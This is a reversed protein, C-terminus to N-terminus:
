AKAVYGIIEKLSPRKGYMLLCLRFVKAAAWMAGAVSGALIILSLALEWASIAGSPLRMMTTVPATLPFFTLVRTIIHEPKMIIFYQLFYPLMAPMVFIGSLQHSERATSGISGVGAFLAAFLLYGLIFYLVGLALLSIPISLESLALINISAVKAFLKITILWVIMQLLGAAGLGLVKGILLQRASVSSLLVEIVRNEKEEAVGHLLYSSTFFISFIFLLGFIYPLFYTILPNQQSAVEGKEDLRLSKILLPNKVRELLEPSLKGALLNALLFDKIEAKIRAPPELEKELTYRTILGSSLYNPPIIFYEKIKGALLAAKAKKEDPYRIFIAGPQKTHQTFRGTQDVYGIRVEGQPAQYWHQVGQFIGMGLTALLPIALTLIIFSKRKITQSFEHKLILLTKNM